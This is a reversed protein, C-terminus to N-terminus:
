LLAPCRRVKSRANTDRIALGLKCLTTNQAEMVQHPM